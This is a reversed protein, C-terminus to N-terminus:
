KQSKKPYKRCVIATFMSYCFLWSLLNPVERRSGTGSAGEISLSRRREAEMNDKLLKAMDVFEGKRIRKVLKAPVIPLTDGLIFLANGDEIHADSEASTSVAQGDGKRSAKELETTFQPLKLNAILTKNKEAGLTGGAFLCLLRDSSIQSQLLM